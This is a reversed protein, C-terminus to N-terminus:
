CCSWFKVVKMLVQIYVIGINNEEGILFVFSISNDQKKILDFYQSDYYDTDLIEDKSIAPKHFNSRDFFNYFRKLIYNEQENITPNEIEILGYGILDSAELGKYFIQTGNNTIITLEVKSSLISEGKIQLKFTDKTLTNSFFHTESITRNVNIKETKLKYNILELETIKSDNKFTLYGLVITTISFVIILIKNFLNLRYQRSQLLVETKNKESETQYSSENIFIRGSDSIRIDLSEKTRLIEIFGDNELKSLVYDM